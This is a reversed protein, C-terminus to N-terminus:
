SHRRVLPRLCGYKTPRRPSRGKPRAPSHSRHSLYPPGTSDQVIRVVSALSNIRGTWPRISTMRGGSCYPRQSSGRQWSVPFSALSRRGWGEVCM